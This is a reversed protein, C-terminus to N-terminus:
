LVINHARIFEYDNDKLHVIFCDTIKYDHSMNQYLRLQLSYHYFCADPLSQYPPLMWKGYNETTIAANTKWDFIFYEGSESLVLADRMSALENNYVISEVEILKLRGTVFWDAIFKTAIRDKAGGNTNIEGTNFFNEIVTHASTGADRSENGKIRWERLLEWPRESMEIAKNTANFKEKHEDIYSTVGKLQKRGNWYTHTISEFCVKGDKSWKIDM